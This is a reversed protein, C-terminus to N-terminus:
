RRKEIEKLIVEARADWTNEQAIKRLLARYDSNSALALATKLQQAFEEASKAILVGEYQMSERMPTIVVPKEGAMYEFLKLPSTAHTIDNVLFPITAADFYHLYHPLERYPKVGLWHVNDLKQIDTSRLTGDYDPGILIFQYDPCLRCVESFLAYDFWRALAGYYGIIPKGAAVIRELDAPLPLLTSDHNSFHDFDVGNPLYLLDPRRFAVQEVLKGATAVVIEADELLRDHGRTIEERDGYFVDIDDVFDYIIRPKDFPQAYGSNWTLLYIWPNEVEEFVKVSANCLIMREHLYQFPPQDKHIKPQLYFVLAGRRALALALQQPRQFLQVDWDLSPPFFIVSRPNKQTETQFIQHFIQRNQHITKRGGLQLVRRILKKFPNPVIRWATQIAFQIIKKVSANFDSFLGM